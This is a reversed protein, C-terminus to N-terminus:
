DLLALLLAERYVQLALDLPLIASDATVGTAKKYSEHWASGAGIEAAKQFAALVPCIDAVGQLTDGLLLPMAADAPLADVADKVTVKTPKGKRGAVITRQLIAPAAAPGVDGVTLDALDLGAMTAALAPDLETFPRALIRSWGGVHWWLMEVEERLSTLQAVLPTVVGRVQAALNTTGATAEQSVQSLLPAVSEWDDTQPLKGIAELVAGKPPSKILKPDIDTHHRAAVAKNHLGTRATELFRPQVLPLRNGALSTTLPALAAVMAGDEVLAALLCGSLVAMERENDLMSFSPDTEAFAARFWEAGGPLPLGFYLRTLGVIARADISTRLSDFPDQRLRIIEPGPSLGAARYHDAFNFGTV